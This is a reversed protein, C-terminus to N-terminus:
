KILVQDQEIGRKIDMLYIVSIISYLNVYIKYLKLSVNAKNFANQGSVKLLDLEINKSSRLPNQKKDINISKRSNFMIKNNDYFDDHNNTEQTTQKKKIVKPPKLKSVTQVKAKPTSCQHPNTNLEKRLVGKMDCIRQSTLIDEENKKNPSENKLNILNIECKAPIAMLGKGLSKYIGKKLNDIKNKKLSEYIHKKENEEFKRELARTKYIRNILYQDSYLQKQFKTDIVNKSKNGNGKFFIEMKCTNIKSMSQTTSFSDNSIDDTTTIENYIQNLKTKFKFNSDQLNNIDANKPTSNISKMIKKM